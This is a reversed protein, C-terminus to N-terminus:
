SRSSQGNLVQLEDDISYVVCFARKVDNYRRCTALAKERAAGADNEDWKLTSYYAIPPHGDDPEKDIAIAFAKHRKALTYRTLKDKGTAYAFVFSSQSDGILRGDRLGAHFEDYTINIDGTGCRSGAYVQSFRYKQKAPPRCFVAAGDLPNVAAPGADNTNRNAKSVPAVLSKEFSETTAHRNSDYYTIARELKEKAYGSVNIDGISHIECDLAQVTHRDKNCGRLAAKMATRVDNRNWTYASSSGSLDTNLTTAYARIHPKERYSDYSYALGPDIGSVTKCGTLIPPLM